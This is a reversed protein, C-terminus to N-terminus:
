ARNHQERRERRKEGLDEVLWRVGALTMGAAEGIEKWTHFERADKLTERFHEDAAKRQRSARTVKELLTPM